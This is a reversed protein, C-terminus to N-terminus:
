KKKRIEYVYMGHHATTFAFESKNHHFDLSFCGENVRKVENLLEHKGNKKIDKFIKVSSEAGTSGAGIMGIDHKSYSAAYVYAAIDPNHTWDITEIRTGKNFDWVQIQDKVSYCGALVRGDQFDLSEGSINSGYMHRVSKGTRVDWIHIVSDWGGSILLKDEIFKVAFIRNDHGTHNWDAKKLTQTLSKTEEDYVRINCDKGATAFLTGTRNFDITNITNDHERMMFLKKMSPIHWYELAGESDATVLTKFTSNVMPRWKLTTVSNENLCAYKHM